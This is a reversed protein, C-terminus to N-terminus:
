GGRGSCWFISPTAACGAEPGGMAPCFVEDTEVDLITQTLVSDPTCCLGPVRQYPFVFCPFHIVSASAM